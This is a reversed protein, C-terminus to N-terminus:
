SRLVAALERLSDRSPIFLLTWNLNVGPRLTTFESKILLIENFDQAQEMLVFELLSGAFEHFFAPPTPTLDTPTATTTSSLPPLYTALASLYACGVINMTEKAASQELETWATTTGLPQKLLLDALALGSRDEFVLLISGTMRGTLGMVCAAVLTDPPGLLEAAASLDAIEVDNVTLRAEEGLWTTLARSAGEAGRDFITRLLRQSADPLISRMSPVQTPHPLSRVMPFISFAFYSQVVSLVSFDFYSQVVSFVSLVSFDFYSQVVSFVSFDFYSQVVSFVSLVSFDFYSQVVSFVSLVSFDFYSQVVSFVSFDFHSQVVSFVSLVSFDFHSQVV